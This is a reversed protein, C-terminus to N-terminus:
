EQAATEAETQTSAQTENEPLWGGGLAKYLLLLQQAQALRGQILRDAADAANIRATLAKDLTFSGYRFLKDAGNAQQQTQNQAESLYQNQQHLAFQGQYANDVEALANLLSQEYQALAARVRADAADIQKQIRGGTFIPLSVGASVAGGWAALHPLDSSLYIRGNQWLFRVDFRPLLDARASALQAARAQLQMEVARVDPRRSLVAVPLVGSPPAPIHNLIDNASPPLVFDQPTKGTLVALSRTHADIQVQVTALAAQLQAIRVGVDKMEYDSVQGAQFRGAAYRRLEQLNKLATQLVALRRENARINLYRDAIEAVALIQAGHWQEAVALAAYQAADADSRKGGFIDAEWSVLVGATQARGHPHLAGVPLGISSLAAQEGASLPNDAHIHSKGANANIVATPLLDANALAAEDRAAQLNAKASALDRNALRGAEILETLTDDQWDLWWRSVDAAEGASTEAFADPIEVSPTLAIQTPTCAACWATLLLSFWHNKNM